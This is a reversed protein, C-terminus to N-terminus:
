KSRQHMARMGEVEDCIGKLDCTGCNMPMGKLIHNLADTVEDAKLAEEVFPKLTKMGVLFLVQVRKVGPNMLYRRIYTSGLREFSIGAKVAAKSVRAQERSSKASTRVMYGKPFIHYRVYELERIFRYLADETRIGDEAEEEMTLFVIRAFSTDEKLEKLEPGYLVIESEGTLEQDSTVCTYNVSECSGGGLEFAADRLMIMEGSATERWCKREDYPYRRPTYASLYERTRQIMGDYLEM